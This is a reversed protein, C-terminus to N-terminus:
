SQHEPERSPTRVTQPLPAHAFPDPEAHGSAEGWAPDPERRTENLPPPPRRTAVAVIGVGLTLLGLVILTPTM